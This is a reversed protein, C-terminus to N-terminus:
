VNSTRIGSDHKIGSQALARRLIMGHSSLDASSTGPQRRQIGAIKLMVNWVQAVNNQRDQVIRENVNQDNAHRRLRVGHEITHDMPDILREGYVTLMKAAAELKAGLVDMRRAEVGALITHTERDIERVKYSRLHNAHEVLLTGIRLQGMTALRNSFSLAYLLNIMFVADRTREPGATAVFDRLGEKVELLRRRGQVGDTTVL